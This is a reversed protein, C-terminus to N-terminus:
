EHKNSDDGKSSSGDKFSDTVAHWLEQLVQKVQKEKRAIAGGAEGLKQEVTSHRQKVQEAVAEAKPKANEYWSKADDLYRQIEEHEGYRAALNARLVALQAQLQAYRKRMLAAEESNKFGDIASNLAERVQDTKTSDGETSESAEIDILLSDVETQLAAEQAEVQAQLQQIEAESQAIAQRKQQSLGAIAGELSATVDEKVEGGRDRLAEVVVAFIDKVVARFETSGEKLESGAQAVAAQVIERLRDGRLKGEDKARQLDATIREKVPNAM